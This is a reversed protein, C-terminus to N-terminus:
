WRRSSSSARTPAPRSSRSRSCSSSCTPSARCCGGRGSSTRARPAAAGGGLDQPRRLPHLRRLHLLTVLLLLSQASWSRAPFSTPRPLLREDGSSRRRRRAQGAALASCEAMVASARAIPNTLYFDRSRREPVARRRDQRRARRLATSRTSRARSRDPRRARFASARRLARARLEALSDFPLRHGLVDSLARLIAWDERADGPPFAARAAMQVRGETNVYTGSKETYAAGPLIVDARHAGADGHTGIYVVFADGLANMDIEDAGLLFLVDLAKTAAAAVMGITDLGGDRPVFGLDLAASAPPRPTCCPSATGATTARRRRDRAQAALALVEPGDPRALAGQGVLMLPRKAAALVKAFGHRGAALAPCRRRGPASTNTRSLDPRGARRDLGIPVDGQRWRKRIRANLVAAEHRPNSGVILIADAEDIGAITPNFIYSARGLAPDLQEGERAAISTAQRRAVGDARRARVDGRGRRPRRRARRDARRRDGQGARRDRAFAEGWTAPMSGATGRPRVAPRAAANPARGLRLADQRLDVGREGGRQPAAPHAHGRPRAHRRPHRSGVADM